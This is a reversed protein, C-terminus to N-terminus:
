KQTAESALDSLARALLAPPVRPCRLGRADLLRRTAEDVWPGMRLAFGQRPFYPLLARLTEASSRPAAACLAERFVEYSTPSVAFGAAQLAAGLEAYTPSGDHNVLNTVYASGDPMSPPDLVLSAVATAVFDVPIMDLVEDRLDIYRGLAVCGQLYRHVYDDANGRARLAHPAIMGPRHITAQLGRASARRVLQEALWKTAVYPSGQAAQSLSLQSREDGGLPATSITSVFHFRKPKAAAALSLLGRTGEVNAGFVVPMPALWSVLAGAHVIADLEHALAEYRAHALGLEPLSLDGAVVRTRRPDLVVGLRAAHGQLRAQADQDSSARVLCIVELSPARMLLAELLNAGLLGTVGTLLLRRPSGLDPRAASFDPLARALEREALKAFSSGESHQDLRRALEALSRSAFWDALPISRGLERELTMLLAAAGLSDLTDILPEDAQVERGLVSSVSLILRDASQTRVSARATALHAALAARAIKGSATLLGESRLREDSEELVVARPLEYEALGARRGHQQLALLVEHPARPHELVSHETDSIGLRSALSERHPVVLTSIFSAGSPAHIFVRDVIPSTALAAEIREASVFEGNALKIANHLRGVIRLEGEPTREALDGTRFYGEGDQVTAGEGLYGSVLLKTRIWLEGRCAVGDRLDQDSRPILKIEVGACLKGDIAISGTETMGYGEHVPIDGFIETLFSFIERSVPASGISLMQLRAGFAARTHQTEIALQEARRQPDPEAIARAVRREHDAFLLEFLRPVAGLVTPEFTALEDLLLHASSAFAVVGGYAFIVPLYARESMHSLPQFSLHRAPQPVMYSAILAHFAAFSRMAGKPAGTSGSTFLLAYLRDEDYTAPADAAPESALADFREHEPLADGEVNDGCVILLPAKGCADEAVKALRAADRAEVLMAAPRTQALISHIRETADDPSLPAVVYGREVAAIDTTLWEARNRTALAVCIRDRAAAGLELRRALAGALSRAASEIEGYTRETEYIGGSTRALIMPKDHFLLLARRWTERLTQGFPSASPLEAGLVHLSLPRANPSRAEVHFFRAVWGLSLDLRVTSQSSRESDLVVEHAHGETPLSQQPGLHGYGCLRIRTGAPLPALWLTVRQLFVSAGLDISWFPAPEPLTPQSWAPLKSPSSPSEESSQRTFRGFAHDELWVRTEGDFSQLYRGRSRLRITLPQRWVRHIQIPPDSPQLLWRQQGHEVDLVWDTRWAHGEVEGGEIALVILARSPHVVLVPEDDRETVIPGVLPSLPHSLGVLSAAEGGVRLLQAALQLGLLKEAPTTREVPPM